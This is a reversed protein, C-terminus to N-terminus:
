QHIVVPNLPGTLSAVPAGVSAQSEYNTRTESIWTEFASIRTNTNPLSARQPRSLQKVKYGGNESVEVSSVFSRKTEAMYKCLINAADFRLGHDVSFRKSEELRRIANTLDGKAHYLMALLDLRDRLDADTYQHSILSRNSTLRFILVSPW